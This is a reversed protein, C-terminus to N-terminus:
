LAIRRDIFGEQQGPRVGVLTRQEIQHLADNGLIRRQAQEAQRRDAVVSLPPMEFEADLAIRRQDLPRHFFNADFDFPAADGPGPAVSRWNPRGYVVFGRGSRPKQRSFFLKSRRRRPLLRPPPARYPSSTPM